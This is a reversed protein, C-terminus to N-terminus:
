NLELVRELDQMPPQIEYTIQGVYLSTLFLAEQMIKATFLLGSM